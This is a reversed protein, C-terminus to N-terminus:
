VKNVINQQIIKRYMRKVLICGQNGTIINLAKLSLVGWVEACVPIASLPLYREFATREYFISNIM